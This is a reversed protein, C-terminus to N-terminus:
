AYGHIETSVEEISTIGAMIKEQGDIAMTRMGSEVAKHRIEGVPVKAIVMSWIEENPILVEFIAIRDRYGGKCRPCGAPKFFNKDKVKEPNLGIGTLEIESPKYEQKCFPCLKRVLRQGIVGIITSAILFPEINMDILRTVASPADNTHLTSVVLHGTLSAQIAIEATEFDRIEGVFIVDPDQRLISRLCSAFTLGIKEKIAVQIAGPLLYEVPDETTILKIDPSNVDKLMAYLTTTKGCGTPGTALIIGQPTKALNNIINQDSSALGINSLRFDIRTRDLVRVAMCEGHVTPITSMRLDVDKGVARFELRGDQPLRRESIDMGSMIKFRCFLGFALEKPPHVLDYLKGDVRYRVRFDNEFPELHLDSANDKCVQLIILNYLSTVPPQSALEEMTTVDAAEGVGLSTSKTDEIKTESFYNILDGISMTEKGYYKEIAADLAVPDALVPKVKRGIIFRSDEQVFQNLIDSVAIVIMDNDMGVPLVQYTKAIAAPILGIIEPQLETKTLDISETGSQISLVRRLSKEDTFHLDVLTRGLFKGTRQQEELAVRLQDDTVLNMERLLQGLLKRAM